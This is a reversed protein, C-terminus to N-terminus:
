INRFHSHQFHCHVPDPINMDFQFARQAVGITALASLFQRLQMAVPIPHFHLVQRTEPSRHKQMVAGLTVFTGVTVTLGRGLLLQGPM